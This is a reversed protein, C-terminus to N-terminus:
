WSPVSIPYLRRRDSPHIARQWAQLPHVITGEPPSQGNEGCLSFLSPRRHISDRCGGRGANRRVSADVTRCTDNLEPFHPIRSLLRCPYSAPQRPRSLYPLGTGVLAGLPHPGPPEVGGSGRASGRPRSEARGAAWLECVDERTDVGKRTARLAGHVREPEHAAGAGVTLLHEEEAADAIPAIAIARAGAGLARPARGEVGGAPPILPTPPPPDVVRGPLGPIPGPALIHRMLSGRRPGREPM